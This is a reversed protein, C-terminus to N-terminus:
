RGEGGRRGEDDGETGGLGQGVEGGAGQGVPDAALRDEEGAPEDGDGDREQQDPRRVPAPDDGGVDQEAEVLAHGPGGGDDHLDVEDAGGAPAQGETEVFGGAIAGDGKGRQGGTRDGGMVPKAGFREVEPDGKGPEAETERGEEHAFGVAVGAVLGVGGSGLGVGVVPEPDDEGAGGPAVGGEAGDALGPEDVIGDVAEGPADEREQEGGTPQRDFGDPHEGRDIGAHPADAM